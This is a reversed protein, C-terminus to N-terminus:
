SLIRLGVDLTEHELLHGYRRAWAGSRLDDALRAMAAEVVHQDVLSLGSTAARVSPDLYADPRRWMAVIMGDSCDHPMPVVEVEVDGFADLPPMTRETLEAVEPVYDFLWHDNHVSVDFTLIVQRRSVRRLEALGADLDRWHHVTVVALAADFAGDAFPM